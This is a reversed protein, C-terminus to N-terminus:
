QRQLDQKEVQDGIDERGQSEADAFGLSNIGRGPKLRYITHPRGEYPSPNEGRAFACLNEYQREQFGVLGPFLRVGGEVVCGGVGTAFLALLLLMCGKGRKAGPKTM